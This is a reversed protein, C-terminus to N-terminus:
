SPAGPQGNSGDPLKRGPSRDYVPGCTGRGEEMAMFPLVSASFLSLCSWFVTELKEGM